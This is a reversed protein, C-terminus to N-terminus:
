QAADIDATFVQDLHRVQLSTKFGQAKRVHVGVDLAPINKEASM